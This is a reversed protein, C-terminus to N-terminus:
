FYEDFIHTYEEVLKRSVKIFNNTPFVDFM